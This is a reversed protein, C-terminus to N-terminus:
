RHICFIIWRNIRDTFCDRRADRTYNCRQYQFYKEYDFYIAFKINTQKLYTIGFFVGNTPTYKTNTKSLEKAQYQIFELRSMLKDLEKNKTEIKSEENSTDLPQEYEQKDQIIYSIDEIEHNLVHIKHEIYRSEAQYTEFIDFDINKNRRILDPHRSQVIEIIKRRHQKSSKFDNLNISTISHIAKVLSSLMVYNMSITGYTSKITQNDENIKNTQEFNENIKKAISLFTHLHEQIPKLVQDQIQKKCFLEISNQNDFLFPSNYGFRTPNYSMENWLAGCVGNVSITGTFINIGHDPNEMAEHYASHIQAPTWDGFYGRRTDYKIVNIIKQMDINQKM